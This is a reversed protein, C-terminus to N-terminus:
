ELFNLSVFWKCKTCEILIVPSNNKIVPHRIKLIYYLDLKSDNNFYFLRGNGVFIADCTSDLSQCDYKSSDLNEIHSKKPITIDFILPCKVHFQKM